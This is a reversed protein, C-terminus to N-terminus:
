ELTPQKRVKYCYQAPFNQSTLGDTWYKDEVFKLVIENKSVYASEDNDEICLEIAGEKSDCVGLLRSGEYQWDIWAEWVIIEIPSFRKRFMDIPMVELEIRANDIGVKRFVDIHAGDIQSDDWWVLGNLADSVAKTMNDFDPSGANNVRYFNFVVGIPVNKAFPPEHSTQHKRFYKRADKTPLLNHLLNEPLVLGAEYMDAIVSDFVDDEFDETKKPTYHIKGASRVRSKPIPNIQITFKLYDVM